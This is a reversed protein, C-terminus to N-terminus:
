PRPRKRMTAADGRRLLSGIRKTARSLASKKHAAPQAYYGVYHSAYRGSFLHDYGNFVLGLLKSPDLSDLAAELLARPTHDAAVVLVIGDVWRAVVRCDQVPALPPTDLVIFNYHRRAEDLLAGLRPSKLVKYPTPPSQAGLVTGRNFPPGPRASDARLCVACGPRTDRGRP